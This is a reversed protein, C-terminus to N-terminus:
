LTHRITNFIKFVILFISSIVDTSNFLMHALIPVWINKTVLYTIGLVLGALVYPGSALFSANFNYYHSFGFLISSIILMLVAKKKDSRYTYLGEYRYTIEEIFAVLLNLMGALFTFFLGAITDVSFNYAEINKEPIFQNFFPRSLQIILFLLLVIILVLFSNVWKKSKFARWDKLLIDRKTQVDRIFLLLFWITPFLFYIYPNSGAINRAITLILLTGLFIVTAIVLGSKKINAM